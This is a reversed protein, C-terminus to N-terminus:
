ISFGTRPFSRFSRHSQSAAPSSKVTKRLTCLHSFCRYSRLIESEGMGMAAQILGECRQRCSAQLLAARIKSRAQYCDDTRM